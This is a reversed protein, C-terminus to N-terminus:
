IVKKIYKVARAFASKIKEDLTTGTPKHIVQPSFQNPKILRVYGNRMITVTGKGEIFVEFKSDSEVIDFHADIFKYNKDTTIDYNQEIKSPDIIEMHTHSEYDQSYNNGFQSKKFCKEVVDQLDKYEDTSYIISVNFANVLRKEPKVNFLMTNKSEKSLNLLETNLHSRSLTYTNDRTIKQGNTAASYSVYSDVSRRVLSITVDNVLVYEKDAEAVQV